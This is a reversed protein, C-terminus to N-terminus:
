RGARRQDAASEPTRGRREGAARRARDRDRRARGGRDADSQGARRRAGQAGGRVLALDAALQYYLQVVERRPRARPRRRATPRRRPPDAPRRSVRAFKALDVLPVALTVAADLQDRPLVKLEGFSVEWQNRTYTGAASVGPLARGFAEDARAEAGERNAVAERNAPSQARAGRVFDDLPQLAQARLRGAGDCDGSLSTCALISPFLSQTRDRGGENCGVPRRM